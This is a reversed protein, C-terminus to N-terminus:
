VGSGGVLVTQRSRRSGARSPIARGHASRAALRADDWLQLALTVTRLHHSTGVARWMEQTGPLIRRQACDEIIQDGWCCYRGGFAPHGMLDQCLARYQEPQEDREISGLAGSGRAVLTGGAITYRINAWMRGGRGSFPSRPHQVGYDGFHVTTAAEGVLEEWLGWERRTVSTISDAAFGALAQPISSGALTITRWRGAMSVDTVIEILQSTDLEADLPWWALDIFLDVDGSRLGLADLEVRLADARTRRAPHPQLARYRLGLGCGDQRASTSVTSRPGPTGVTYVPVFSLGARRANEHIEALEAASVDSPRDKPSLVDLYLAHSGVATKLERIADISGSVTGDGRRSAKLELQILPTMSSWVDAAAHALAQREGKRNLLLPVYHASADPGAGTPGPFPPAPAILTVM